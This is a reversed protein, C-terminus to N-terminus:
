ILKKNEENIYSELYKINEDKSIIQIAYLNVELFLTRDALKDNTDSMSCLKETLIEIKHELKQM